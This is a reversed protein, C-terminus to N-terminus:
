TEKARIDGAGHGEGQWLQGQTCCLEAERINPV